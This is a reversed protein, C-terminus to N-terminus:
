SPSVYTLLIAIMCIQEGFVTGTILLKPMLSVEAGVPPLGDLGLPGNDLSHEFIATSAPPEHSIYATTGDELIIPQTGEVLM